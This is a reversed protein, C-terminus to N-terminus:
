QSGSPSEPMQKSTFPCFFGAKKGGMSGYGSRCKAVCWVNCAVGMLSVVIILWGLLKGARRLDSKKTHAEARELVWYGAVATLLLWASGHGHGLM